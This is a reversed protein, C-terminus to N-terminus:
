FSFTLHYIAIFGASFLCTFVIEDVFNIIAILLEPYYVLGYSAGEDDFFM